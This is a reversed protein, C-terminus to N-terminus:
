LPTRHPCTGRVHRLSWLATDCWMGFLPCSHSCPGVFSCVSSCVSPRGNNSLLTPIWNATNRQRTAVFIFNPILSNHHLVSLERILLVFSFYYLIFVLIVFHFPRWTISATIRQFINSNFHPLLIWLCIHHICVSISHFYLTLTAFFYIERFLCFFIRAFM